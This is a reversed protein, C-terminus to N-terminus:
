KKFVYIAKDGAEPDVITQFLTFGIHKLYSKFMNPRMKIGDGLICDKFEPKHHKQKKYSKWPQQEFVFFGGEALQEYAKLFLAKVGIDGYCLHVWKVTSMCLITDFQEKSASEIYNETRYNLRQYLKEKAKSTKGEPKSQRLFEAQSQLALQLSKPLQKVQALLESLKAFRGEDEEM